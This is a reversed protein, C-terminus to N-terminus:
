KVSNWCNSGSRVCSGIAHLTLCMSCAVGGGLSFFNFPTVKGICLREEFRTDQLIREDSFLFRIQFRM